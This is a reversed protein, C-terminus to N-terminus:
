INISHVECNLLTTKPQTTWRRRREPGYGGRRCRFCSCGNETLFAAQPAFRSQQTPVFTDYCYISFIRHMERTFHNQGLGQCPSDLSEDLPSPLSWKWRMQGAVGLPDMSPHLRETLGELSLDKWSWDNPHRGTAKTGVIEVAQQTWFLSRPTWCEKRMRPTM